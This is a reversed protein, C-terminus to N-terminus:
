MITTNRVTSLKNLPLYLGNFCVWSYVNLKTYNELIKKRRQWSAKIAPTMKRVKESDQLIASIEDLGRKVEPPITREIKSQLSKLTEWFEVIIQHLGEEDDSTRQLFYETKDTFILGISLLKYKSVITTKNTPPLNVEALSAEIDFAVFQPEYNIPIYGASRLYERDSDALNGYQKQKHSVVIKGSCKETHRRFAWRQTTSFSCNKTPCTHTNFKEKILIMKLDRTFPRFGQIMELKIM